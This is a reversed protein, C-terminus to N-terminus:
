NVPFKAETLQKPTTAFFFIDYVSYIRSYGYSDLPKGKVFHM